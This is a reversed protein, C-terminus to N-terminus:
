TKNEGRMMIIKGTRVFEVIEFKKCLSVMSDIKESSGTLQIIMSVETM